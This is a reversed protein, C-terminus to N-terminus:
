INKLTGKPLVATVAQRQVKIELGENLEVGIIDDSLRSIKGLLGGSTTIEDGVTLSNILNRQENMKKNQPRIIIWYFVIGILAMMTIQGVMPNQHSGLTEAALSISTNLLLGVVIFIKLM